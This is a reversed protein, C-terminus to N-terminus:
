RHADGGEAGAQEAAQDGQVTIQETEYYLTDTQRDITWRTAVDMFTFVFFIALFLFAGFFVLSHFRIDYRLHMFFGVVLGAKIIAVFMAVPLSLPGLNAFSVGVTLATLVLLSGYVGLYIWHPLVHHGAHGHTEARPEDSLTDRLRKILSSM